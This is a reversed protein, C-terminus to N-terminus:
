QSHMTYITSKHRINNDIILISCALKKTMKQDSRRKKRWKEDQWLLWGYIPRYVPFVLRIVPQSGDSKPWKRIKFNVWYVPRNKQNELFGFFWDTDTKGAWVIKYVKTPAQFLLMHPEQSANFSFAHWKRTKRPTPAITKHYRHLVTPTGQKQLAEV